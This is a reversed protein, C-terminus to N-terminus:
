AKLVVVPDIRSARYAPVACAAVVLAAVASGIVLYTAPDTPRVGYVLTRLLRSGAFAAPLGIALGWAAYWVGERLVAGMVRARDAGLAMMIGLEHRRRSVSYAVVGYVGVAAILAGLAGFMGLLTTLLRPRGLSRAIRQDM